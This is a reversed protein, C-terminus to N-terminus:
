LGLFVRLWNEVEALTLRDLTGLRRHLREQTVTRIQDCLIWSPRNVGGSPPVVAVHGSVARYRSTVPVLTVLASPAENIAAESIVLAPRARGQELGRPIGLDTLWVEGRHPRPRVSM